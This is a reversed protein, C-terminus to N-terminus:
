LFSLKSQWRKWLLGRMLSRARESWVRHKRLSVRSNRDCLVRFHERFCELELDDKKGRM